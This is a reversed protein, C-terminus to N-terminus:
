EAQRDAWDKRLKALARHLTVSVNDETMELHAAIEGVRWGLM